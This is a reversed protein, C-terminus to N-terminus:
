VAAPPVVPEGSTCYGDVGNVVELEYPRLDGTGIATPLDQFIVESGFHFALYKKLILDPMGEQTMDCMGALRLYCTDQEVLEMDLAVSGKAIFRITKIDEQSRM